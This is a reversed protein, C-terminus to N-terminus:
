EEVDEARLQENPALARKLKKGIYSELLHPALGTGPRKLLLDTERLVRGPPLATGAVISRRFALRAEREGPSPEIADSGRQLAAKHVARVLSAMEEPDASLAHDPGPLNCDLTFHKEVLLAGLATAVISAEIGRSHDSYGVPLSYRKQLAMMRTLNVQDDPTPYLSVCHLLLIQECGQQRLADLARSIETEDGMGTSLIVPLGLGGVHTLLPLNVLDESALKLLPVGLDRLLEASLPDAASSLFALGQEESHRKLREHWSEPLELRKFMEYMSERVKEGRNEYEYPHDPDAMFEEARFTQFKVADVGCAAAADISRLALDLDGNHNVGIEAVIFPPDEPRLLRSGITFTTEM